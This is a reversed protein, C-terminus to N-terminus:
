HLEGGGREAVPDPVAADADGFRRRVAEIDEEDAIGKELLLSEAIDGQTVAHAVDAEAADVRVQLERVREALEAVQAALAQERRRSVVASGAAALVVVLALLLEM